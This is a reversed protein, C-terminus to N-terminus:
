FQCRNKNRIEDRLNLGSKGFVTGLRMIHFDELNKLKGCECCKCQPGKVHNAKRLREPTVDHYDVLTINLNGKNKGDDVM